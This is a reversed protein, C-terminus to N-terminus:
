LILFLFYKYTLVTKNDCYCSIKGKYVHLMINTKYFYFWIEM